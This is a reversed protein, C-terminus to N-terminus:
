HCSMEPVARVDAVFALDGFALAWPNNSLLLPLLGLLSLEVSGSRCLCAVQPVSAFLLGVLECLALTARDIGHLMPTYGCGTMHKVVWPGTFFGHVVM